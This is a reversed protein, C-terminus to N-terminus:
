LESRSTRVLVKYFDIDSCLLLGECRGARATSAV